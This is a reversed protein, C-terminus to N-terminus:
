VLLDFEHSRSYAAIVVKSVSASPKRRRGVMLRRQSPAEQLAAAAMGAAAIENLRRQHERADLKGNLMAVFEAILQPESLEEDSQSFWDSVSSWSWLPSSSNTHAIPRPFDGSGRKGNALQSISQRSRGSREAIESANVLDEPEVKIVRLHPLAGDLQRIASIVAEAFSQSEVDFDAFQSEGSRRFLASDDTASSLLDFTEEATVDPGALELTFEYTKTEPTSM